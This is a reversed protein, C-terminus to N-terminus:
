ILKTPKGSFHFNGNKFKKYTGQFKYVGYDEKLTGIYESAYDRCDECLWPSMQLSHFIAEILVIDGWATHTFLITGKYKKHPEPALHGFTAAYQRAKNELVISALTEIM